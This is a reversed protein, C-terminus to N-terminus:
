RSLELDRLVTEDIQSHILRSLSAFEVDTVGLQERVLVEIDASLSERAKSLWRSVTSVNVRYMAGIREMSMQEYLWLRLLVREKAPMRALATAIAAEFVRSYRLKLYLTEADPANSPGVQSEPAVDDGSQRRRHDLAVRQACVAVWSLLSARGSYSALRPPDPPRGVLLRERLSQTVEQVFDRDHGIRSVFQPVRTLYGSEFAWLAKPAGQLCACALYLDAAHRAADGLIAADGLRRLYAVFTTPAVDLEPWHRAGAAAVAPYDGQM